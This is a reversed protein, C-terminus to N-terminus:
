YGKFPDNLIQSPKVRRSRLERRVAEVMGPPGSLLYHADNQHRSVQVELAANTEETTSTYIIEVNPNAASAADLEDQYIHQGNDAYILKLSADSRLRALETIISRFPTIGIGGAVAVLNKMTPRLYLEGYPGHMRAKEGPKLAALHQKFSSPEPPIITGVRIVGESPASAVSFPRWTKGAVPKGPLTFIAHQGAKWTPLRAAKFIFSFGDDGEDIKKVLELDTTRLIGSYDLPHRAARAIVDLM